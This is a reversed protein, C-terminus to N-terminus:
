ILHQHYHWMAVTKTSITAAVLWYTSEGDWRSRGSVSVVKDGDLDTLVGGGTWLRMECESMLGGQGTLLVACWVVM